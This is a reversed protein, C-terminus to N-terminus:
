NRAVIGPIDPDIADIHDMEEIQRRIMDLDDPSLPQGYPFEIPIVVAARDAAEPSCGQGQDREALKAWADAMQLWTQKTLADSTAEAEHRCLQARRHYVDQM